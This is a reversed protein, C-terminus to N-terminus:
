ISTRGYEIFLRTLLDSRDEEAMISTTQDAVKIAAIGLTDIRKYVRIVEMIVAEAIDPYLNWFEEGAEPTTMVAMGGTYVVKMTKRGPTYLSFLDVIGKEADLYYNATDVESDVDFVRTSDVFIKFDETDDVPFGKLLIRDMKETIDMVVSREIQDVWRDTENQFDASVGEIIITLTVDKKVGVNPPITLVAKVMDLTVLQLPM